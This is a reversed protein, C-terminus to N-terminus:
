GEERRVLRVTEKSHDLELDIFGRAHCEFEIGANRGIVDIVAQRATAKRPPPLFASRMEQDMQRNLGVFM